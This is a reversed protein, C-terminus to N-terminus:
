KCARWDGGISIDTRLPVSLKMVGEMCSRLLAQVKEVENEPAEIILEDHVQLILRAQLNEAKLARDVAVMALKVNMSFMFVLSLTLLVLIRFVNVLQEGVFQKISDVDSTCRQIIDGTQNKMHWAFPLRQIHAFLMNRIRQTFTEAAKTNSVMNIYRFLGTLLAILVVSAAILLLNGRLAEVGGVANVAMELIAPVNLPESGIVSDVTLKIIQPTLMECLSVMMSGFIGLLYFRKSGKLFLFILQLRGYKKTEQQM